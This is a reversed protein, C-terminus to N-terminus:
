RPDGPVRAPTQAPPAPAPPAPVPLAQAALLQAALRRAAPRRSAASAKGGQDPPVTPMAPAAPLAPPAPAQGAPQRPEGLLPKGDPGPEGLWRLIAARKAASLDRTVPMSNPDGIDLSFALTLLKAHACVSDYDGLDLFDRMVPYLNAYQRLIPEVAGHWTPPEDPEFGSWVLLSIYNWQNYPYPDAPSIITEELVPCIAYVQGDIYGRPRGPDCARLRLRAMGRADTVLRIAYRIADAPVAVPPAQGPALPSDPQLQEPVPVTLVAADACAHGFRTAYLDATAEEGPNLRFVFQDARVFLGSDPESIAVTPQGGPVTAILSLPGGDLGALEDDTLPRDPPFVAIGATAPYWSPDTYKAAVLVGIVPPQTSRLQTSRAQTSPPQTSRPQAPQPQVAPSASLGSPPALCLALDGIDAPAGGAEGTPLANGLDLYVRRTARDVAAACFNVGGAPSFFTGGLGPLTMFQRGAVFHRPEDPDAPGITGVVRGMMFRAGPTMSFGDVNFKVSLRERSPSQAGAAAADRLARLFPSGSVDGWALHTLVSQFMAGAALDGVAGDPGPVAGGAGRDWIDTFAVPEFEGRLLTDGATTAIRLELGFIMSVLQQEPDLDVLKAAASRDSDAVRAARVPDASGAPSGDALFASTVVCDHLKWDGCGDPNFWGNLEGPATGTSPEAYSPRFRASDYHVPDNNVTSVAAEFSGSFHLRLPNLYSV